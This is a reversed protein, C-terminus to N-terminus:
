EAASKDTRTHTQRDTEGSPLLSKLFTFNEGIKEFDPLLKAIEEMEPM